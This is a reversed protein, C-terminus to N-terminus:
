ELLPISTGPGCCPAWDINPELFSALGAVFNGDEELDILSFTKWSASM